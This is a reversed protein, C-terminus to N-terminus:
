TVDVLLTVLVKSPTKIEHFVFFKAQIGGVTFSLPGSLTPMPVSLNTGHRRPVPSHIPLLLKPNEMRCEM